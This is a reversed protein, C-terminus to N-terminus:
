VFFDAEDEFGLKGSVFDSLGICIEAYNILDNDLQFLNLKCNFIKEM